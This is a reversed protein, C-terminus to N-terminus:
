RLEFEIRRNLERGYATANDAIPESSGAGSVVLRQPDVGNLTLRDAVAQARARSLQRNWAEDGSADTHGTIVITAAPCDHAFETIRDLAPLSGQRLEASSQAFSIPGLVLASFAKRCLEDLSEASRIVIIDTSLEASAPLAERLFRIRATTTAPDATVGRIELQGATMQADASAMSAIVYLLRSSVTEWGDGVLIGPRFEAVLEADDFEDDALRQLAAEHNASSSTGAITLRLPASSITIMPADLPPLVPARAEPPPNDHQIGTSLLVGVAFISITSGVRM